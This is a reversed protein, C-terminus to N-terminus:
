SSRLRLSQACPRLHCGRINPAGVSVKGAAEVEVIEVVEDKIAKKVAAKAPWKPAAAKEIAPGGDSGAGKEEAEKKEAKKKAGRSLPRRGPMLEAARGTARSRAAGSCSEGPVKSCCAAAGTERGRMGGPLRSRVPALARARRHPAAAPPLAKGARRAGAPV